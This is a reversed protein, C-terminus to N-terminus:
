RARSAPTYARPSHTEVRSTIVILPVPVSLFAFKRSRRSASPNSTTRNARTSDLAASAGGGQPSGEEKVLFKGDELVGAKLLKRILAIFKRDAIDHELFKILWEHNLTDFFSRIDAEVVYNTKRYQIMEV